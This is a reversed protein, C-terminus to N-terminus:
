SQRIHDSQTLLYFIDVIFKHDYRVLHLLLHFRLQTFSCLRISVVIYPLSFPHCRIFAYAVIYAVNVIHDYTKVNYM